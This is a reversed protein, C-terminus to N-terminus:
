MQHRLIYLVLSQQLLQKPQMLGLRGMDYGGYQLSSYGPEQLDCVHPTRSLCTDSNYDRLHNYQNSNWTEYQSRLLVVVELKIDNLFFLTNNMDCQIVLNYWYISFFSFDNDTINRQNDTNHKINMIYQEFTDCLFQRQQFELNFLISEKSLM